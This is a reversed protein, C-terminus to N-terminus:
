FRMTEPTPGNTVQVRISPYKAHFDELYPLLYFRLTMDSAGIKVEGQELSVMSRFAEEGALLSGIGKEVYSFLVEGEARLRVGKSARVFLPSGLGEELQRITQSVAPQSICLKEAAATISGARAVEYFIRYYELNVM